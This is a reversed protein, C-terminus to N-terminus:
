ISLHSILSRALYHVLLATNKCSKKIINLLINTMLLTVYHLASMLVSMASLMWVQAIVSFLVGSIDILVNKNLAQM